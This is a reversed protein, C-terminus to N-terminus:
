FLKTMSLSLWFEDEANVTPEESWQYNIGPKIFLGKWAFTTEAQLTYHSWGPEVGLVGDHYNAAARLSIKQPQWLTVPVEATLAFEHLSGEEILDTKVSHWHTLTYSPVIATEGLSFLNPLSWVTQLKLLRLRTTSIPEFDKDFGVEWNPYNIYYVTAQGKLVYEKQEFFTHTYRVAPGTEDWNHDDREFVYSYVYGVEFNPIFVHNAIVTAQGVPSGNSLDFGHAVYQSLYTFDAVFGMPPKEARLSNLIILLITLCPLSRM